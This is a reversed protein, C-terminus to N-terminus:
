ILYVSRSPSIELLFDIQNIFWPYLCMKSLQFVYSRYQFSLNLQVILIKFHAVVYKM